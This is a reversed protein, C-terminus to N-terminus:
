KEAQDAGDCGIGCIWLFADELTDLLATYQAGADTGVIRRMAEDRLVAVPCPEIYVDGFRHRLFEAHLQLFHFDILQGADAIKLGTLDVDGHRAHAVRALAVLLDVEALSIEPGPLGKQDPFALRALERIQNAFTDTDSTAAVGQAIPAVPESAMPVGEIGRENEFEAVLPRAHLRHVLAGDNAIGLIVFNKGAEGFAIGSEDNEVLGDAHLLVSDPNAFVIRLDPIRHVERQLVDRPRTQVCFDVLAPETWFRVRRHRRGALYLDPGISSGHMVTLASCTPMWTLSAQNNSPM